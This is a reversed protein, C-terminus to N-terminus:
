WFFLCVTRYDKYQPRSEKLRQLIKSFLHAGIMSFEDFFLFYIKKFNNQLRELPTPRLAAFQKHEIPIQFISHITFGNVNHAAVGTFATIILGNTFQANIRSKMETILTSKGTGARGQVITTQNLNTPIQKYQPNEKIFNIQCQLTTLVQNQEISFSSPSSYESDSYVDSKYTKLFQEVEATAPYDNQNESWNFNIDQLREGLDQIRDTIPCGSIADALTCHEYSSAEPLQDGLDIEEEDEYEEHKVDKDVMALRNDYLEQWTAFQSKSLMTWPLSRFPINLMCQMKYYATDLEVQGTKKYVPFTRVINEVRAYTYKKGYVNIKQMFAFIGLAEYCKPRQMYKEIM